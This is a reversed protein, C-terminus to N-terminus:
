FLENDEETLSDVFQPQEISIYEIKALDEDPKIFGSFDLIMPTKVGNKIFFDDYLDESMFSSDYFIKNLVYLAKVVPIYKDKRIKSSKTNQYLINFFKYLKFVSTSLEESSFPLNQQVSTINANILSAVHNLYNIDTGDNQGNVDEKYFETLYKIVANVLDLGKTLDELTFNKM